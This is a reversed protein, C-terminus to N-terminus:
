ITEGLLSLLYVFPLDYSYRGEASSSFLKWRLSNRKKIIEGLENEQKSTIRNDVSYYIDLDNENKAMLGLSISRIM